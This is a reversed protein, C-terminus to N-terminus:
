QANKFHPRYWYVLQDEQISVTNQGAKYAAIYPVMLDMMATHDFGESWKKNGDSTQTGKYKSLLTSETWDNFTIMEVFKLTDPNASALDLIQQWRTTWLTDSYLVYNKPYGTSAPLHAFVTKTLSLPNQVLTHSM